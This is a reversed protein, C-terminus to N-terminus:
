QWRNKAADDSARAEVWSAGDETEEYKWFPADTKLFDMMYCAASFADHRHAAATGVFVIREGALLKGIRHIIIAQTLDWRELAESRIRDLEKETMIPYHELTISKVQKNNHSDRVLGTFSVVAGPLHGPKGQELIAIQDGPNFDEQQILVSM